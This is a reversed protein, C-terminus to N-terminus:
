GEVRALEIKKLFPRSRESRMANWLMNRAGFGWPCAGRFRHWPYRLLFVLSMLVLWDAHLHAVCLCVCLESMLPMGARGLWGSGTYLNPKVLMGALCVDTVDSAGSCM